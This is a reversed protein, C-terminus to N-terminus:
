NLFLYVIWILSLPFLTRLHIYLSCLTISSSKASIIPFLSIEIWFAKFTQKRKQPIFVCFIETELSFFTIHFFKFCLCRMTKLIFAFNLSAKFLWLGLHCSYSSYRRQRLTNHLTMSLVYHQEGYHTYVKTQLYQVSIEGRFNQNGERVAPVYVSM